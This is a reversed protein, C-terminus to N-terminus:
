KVARKLAEGPKFRPMRRSPVKKVAGGGFPTVDKKSFVKTFFKGFGSIKVKEGQSLAKSIEGFVLEVVEKAVRKPLKAKKAVIETLERKKM